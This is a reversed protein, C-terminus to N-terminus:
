TEELGRVSKREVLEGKMTERLPPRGKEIQEVLCELNKISYFLVQFFIM